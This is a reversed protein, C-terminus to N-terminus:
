RQARGWSRCWERDEDEDPRMTEPDNQTPKLWLRAGGKVRIRGEIRIWAKHRPYIAAEVVSTRRPEKESREARVEELRFKWGVSQTREVREVIAEREESSLSKYLRNITPARVNFRQAIDVQRWGEYFLRVIEAKDKATLTAYRKPPM